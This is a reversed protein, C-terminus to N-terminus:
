QSVEWEKKNEFLLIDMMKQGAWLLCIAGYCGMLMEITLYRGIITIKTLLMLTIFGAAMPFSHTPKLFLKSAFYVLTGQLTYLFFRDLYFPVDGKLCQFVPSVGEWLQQPHLTPICPFIQYFAFGVWAFMGLFPWLNQKSGIDISNTVQRLMGPYYRMFLSAMSAGWFGSIVNLTIDLLSPIRVPNFTQLLEVTLSICFSVLTPILLTKKTSVKQLILLCGLFLGSPLFLLLNQVIDFLFIHDLWDLFLITLTPREPIRWDHFPFLAGYFIFGTFLAFLVAIPAKLQTNTFPTNSFINSEAKKM